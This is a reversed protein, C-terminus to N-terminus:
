RRRTQKRRSRSGQRLPRQRTSKLGVSSRKMRSSRSPTRVSKRRLKAHRKRRSDSQRPRRM